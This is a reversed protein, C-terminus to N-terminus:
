HPPLSDIGPKPDKPRAIRRFQFGGINLTPLAGCILVAQRLLLGGVLGLLAGIFSVFGVAGMGSESMGYFLIMMLLFPLALGLVFYGLVFIRNKMIREASERADPHRYAAQLFFFIALVEAVVLAAAEAAMITLQSATAAGENFIVMGLMIFFHGTVLASIVFVVPVVGSRWFPIGKSAGLLIGTYAMTLIACIIGLIPVIAPTSGPTAADYTYLHIFSFLMFLSIIWFGRAIWSTGPKLGAFIFKGPSGLDALLVISGILLAPFGIWLGVSTSLAVSKGLFSNIAAITYAGGGVGGLFLYIAILWGWEKQLQGNVKPDM